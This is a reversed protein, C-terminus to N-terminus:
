PNAVMEFSLAVLKATVCDEIHVRGDTLARVRDYDWTAITIPLRSVGSSGEIQSSVLQRRPPRGPRWRM